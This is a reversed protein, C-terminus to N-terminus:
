ATANAEITTKKAIGTAIAAIKKVDYQASQISTEKLVIEALRSYEVETIRQKAVQTNEIAGKIEMPLDVELLQFGVLDCYVREKLTTEITSKMSQGMVTRNGFFDM